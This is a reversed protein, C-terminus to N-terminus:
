PSGGTPQTRARSPLPRRIGLMELTNLYSLTAEIANDFAENIDDGCSHTGFELCEAAWQDGERHARLTLDVHYVEVGPKDTVVWCHATAADM